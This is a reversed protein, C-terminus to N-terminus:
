LWVSVLVVSYFNPKSNRTGTRIVVEMFISLIGKQAANKGGSILNLDKELLSISVHIMGKSNHTGKFVPLIKKIGAKRNIPLESMERWIDGGL